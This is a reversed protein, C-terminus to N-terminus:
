IIKLANVANQAADKKAEKKNGQKAGMFTRGAVTVRFKFKQEGSDGCKVKYEPEPIKNKECYEKLRSIPNNGPSTLM